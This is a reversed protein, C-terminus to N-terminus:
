AAHSSEESRIKALRRHALAAGAFMLPFSVASMGVLYTKPLLWFCLIAAISVLWWVVSERIIFARERSSKSQKIGVYTGFVGIGFGIVAGVVYVSAIVPDM